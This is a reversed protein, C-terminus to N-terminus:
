IEHYAIFSLITTDEPEKEFLIRYNQIASFILMEAEFYFDEEIEYDEKQNHHKLENKTKNQVKKLEKGDVSDKNLFTQLVEVGQTITFPKSNAICFKELIENAAGALTIASIYKEEEFLVIAQKLQILAIDSKKFKM